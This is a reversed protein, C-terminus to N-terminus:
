RDSKSDADDDGMDDIHLDYHAVWDVHGHPDIDLGAEVWAERRQREAKRLAAQLREIREDQSVVTAAINPLLAIFAANGYGSDIRAIPDGGNIPYVAIEDSPEPYHVGIAVWPGNTSAERLERVREAPIPRSEQRTNGLVGDRVREASIPDDTM